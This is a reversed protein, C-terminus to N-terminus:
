TYGWFNKARGCRCEDYGGTYGTAIGPAVNVPKYHYRHLGFKCPLPLALWYRLFGDEGFNLWWLRYSEFIRLRDAPM